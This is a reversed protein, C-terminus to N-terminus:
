AVLNAKEVQAFPLQFEDEGEAITLHTDSVARLIGGFNRRGQEPRHLRLRIEAGVFRAFQPLTFLPRDLGPSSVELVYEGPIVDEVDLLDSIQRSVRECDDVSIGSASDIYVRLLIGERRSLRVVGWLEYGLGTVPPTLLNQLAKDLL